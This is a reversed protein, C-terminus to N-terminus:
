ACVCGADIDGLRALETEVNGRLAEHALVTAQVRAFVEPDADFWHFDGNFVLRKRGREREFLEHRGVEARAPDVRVDVEEAAEDVLLHAQV